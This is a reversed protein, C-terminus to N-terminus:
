NELELYGHLAAVYDDPLEAQKAAKILIELYAKDPKYNGTPIAVYVQCQIDEGELLNVKMEKRKYAKPDERKQLLFFGLPSPVQAPKTRCKLNGASNWRM